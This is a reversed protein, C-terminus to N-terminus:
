PLKQQCYAALISLVLVTGKILTLISDGLSNFSQKAVDRMLFATATESM